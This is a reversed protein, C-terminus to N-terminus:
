KGKTKLLENNKEAQKAVTHSNLAKDTCEACMGDFLNRDVTGKDKYCYSCVAM